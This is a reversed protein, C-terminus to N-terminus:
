WGSLGPDPGAPLGGPALADLVVVAQGHLAAPALPASRPEISRFGGSELVWTAVILSSDVLLARRLFALDWNLGSSLILVGLRGPAVEVAVARSNNAATIEAHLSDVRATWVALGARVPTVHCEATAEGGSGPAIETARGMERDGD